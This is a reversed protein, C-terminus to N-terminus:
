DFKLQKLSGTKSIAFIEVHSIIKLKNLDRTFEYPLRSIGVWVSKQLMKFNLNKLASRLWVRKRREGEPIDFIIIKLNDDNQSQYKASPMAKDKKDRLKNLIEKGSQTLRLFSGKRGNVDDILEDKRLRYLLDDFRRKDKKLTKLNERTERFKRLRYEAGHFSTGYPMTFIFFLEEIAQGSNELFELIKLRNEGKMFISLRTKLKNIWIGIRKKGEKIEVLDM